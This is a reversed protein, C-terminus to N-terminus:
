GERNKRKCYAEFQDILGMELLFFYAENKLNKETVLRDVLEPKDLGYYFFIRNGSESIQLRNIRNLDDKPLKYKSLNQGTSNNKM